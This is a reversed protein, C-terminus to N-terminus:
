SRAHTGLWWRDACRPHARDRRVDFRVLVPADMRMLHHLLRPHCVAGVHFRYFLLMVFRVLRYPLDDLLDLFENLLYPYLLYHAADFRGM